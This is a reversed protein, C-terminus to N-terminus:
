RRSRRAGPRLFWALGGVVLVCAVAVGLSWHRDGVAWGHAAVGALAFWGMVTRQWALATREAQAGTDTAPDTM